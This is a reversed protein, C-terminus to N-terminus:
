TRRIARVRPTGTSQGGQVNLAGTLMATENGSKVVIVAPGSSANTNVSFMAYVYNGAYKFDGLRRVGPNMVEFTTMGSTFGDGAVAISVTEGAKLSAPTAGLSFDTRGSPTVGVWMPNLRNAGSSTVMLNGYIKGNEVRITGGFFETPFSVVKADRWVGDLNRPDVPGDLPEAYLRYSGAPVPQLTFDGNSNTLATAIPEGDDNVAVVQAAFIGGSDGMVRGQLTAGMMTVDSKPYVASIAVTDDSTLATSGGKSVWPYMVSSLVGSHDLGLLHGVEHELALQVNYDSKMMSADIQIDAERLQGTPIDYWNTTAAIFGQGKFMDDMLTVSNQGNPGAQLGDGVGLSRFTVDADAVKTWAEFARDVVAEAGNFSNVVRRDVIYSVPFASKAWYIATPAGSMPYTLRTAALSPLASLLLLTSLVFKRSM